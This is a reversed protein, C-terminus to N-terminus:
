TCLIWLISECIIAIVVQQLYTLKELDDATVQTRDGLM